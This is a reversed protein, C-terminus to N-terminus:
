QIPFLVTPVHLAHNALAGSSKSGSASKLGVMPGTGPAHASSAHFLNPSLATPEHLRANVSARDILFALDTSSELMAQLHLKSGMTAQWALHQLLLGKMWDTTVARQWLTKTERTVLGDMSWLERLISQHGDM